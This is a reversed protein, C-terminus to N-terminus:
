NTSDTASLDRQLLALLADNFAAAEEYMAWHGANPVTEFPCGPQVRRMLEAREHTFPYTTSDLEGWLGAIPAPCLPLVRTLSADRSINRSKTVARTTNLMQMLVAVDDIKERDRLMLIGLNNRALAKFEDHTMDRRFRAMPMGDPRRLGMGGAGVLTFSRLRQDMYQATHGGLIAGFSFGVLDFRDEPNPFLQKLGNAIVTGISDADQVDPPPDSDGLGPSDACYVTYHQKFFPVNRIWHIWSGYGGHFFVLNPKGSGLGWVRWIQSGEGSPTRLIEADAEVAGIAAAAEPMPPIGHDMRPERLVRM